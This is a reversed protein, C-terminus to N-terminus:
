SEGEGSNSVKVILRRFTGLSLWMDRSFTEEDNESLDGNVCELQKM